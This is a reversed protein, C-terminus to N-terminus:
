AILFDQYEFDGRISYQGPGIVFDVREFHHDDLYDIVDDIEHEDDLKIRFTNQTLFSRTVLKEALAEPYTLIIKTSVSSSLKSVAHARALANSSETREIDYSKKYSTPFFLVKKRQFSVDKEGLINELDNFYYAATEKENVIILHTGQHKSIVSAAIIPAVSGAMGSLWMGQEPTDRLHDLIEM